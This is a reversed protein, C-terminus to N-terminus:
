LLLYRIIGEVHLAAREDIEDVRVVGTEALIRHGGAPVPVRQEARSHTILIKVAGLEM